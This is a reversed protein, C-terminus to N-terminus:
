AFVAIYVNVTTLFVVVDVNVATLFVDAYFHVLLYIKTITLPQWNILYNSYIMRNALMPHPLSFYPIVQPGSIYVCYLFYVTHIQSPLLSCTLLKLQCSKPYMPWRNIWFILRTWGIIKMYRSIPLLSFYLDCLIIYNNRTLELKLNNSLYM